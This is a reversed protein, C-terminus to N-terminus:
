IDWHRRSVVIKMLIWNIILVRLNYWYNMILIVDKLWFLLCKSLIDISIWIAEFFLLIINMVTNCVIFISKLKDSHCPSQTLDGFILIWHPPIIWVLNLYIGSTITNRFCHLPFIIWIASIWSICSCAHIPSLAVHALACIALHVLKRIIRVFIRTVRQSYNILNLRHIVIPTRSIPIIM